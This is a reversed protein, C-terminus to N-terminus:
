RAQRLSRGPSTAFPCFPRKKGRPPSGITFQPTAQPIKQPAPRAVSGQLQQMRKLLRADAQRRSAIRAQRAAIDKGSKHLKTRPREDVEYPDGIADTNQATRQLQRALKNDAKGRQPCTQATRLARM